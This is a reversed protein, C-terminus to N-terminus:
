RILMIQGTYRRTKVNFDPKAVLHWIYIQNAGYHGDGSNSGNWKETRDRTEFVKQGWRDVIWFHYDVLDINSLVPGFLDNLGDGNPTFSNPVFIFFDDAVKIEQCQTDLCGHESIVDLCVEYTGGDVDPFSFSTNRSEASALTDITWYSQVDLPSNNRFYVEPNSVSIESDDFYFDAYTSYVKLDEPWVTRSKCGNETEVELAVTYTGPSDFVFSAEPEATENTQYESSWRFLEGESGQNVHATLELPACGSTQSLNFDSEPAPRVKVSDTIASTCGMASVATLKIETSTSASFWTQYASDASFCHTPEWSYADGGFGILSLSDNSCVETGGAIQPVPLPHTRFAITDSFYCGNLSTTIELIEEQVFPSEVNAFFQLGENGNASINPSQTWDFEQGPEPNLPLMLTDLYCVEHIPELNIAPIPLVELFHSATDTSTCNADSLSVVRYWGEANAAIELANSETIQANGITENEELSYTWPGMGNFLIEITATDGECINEPASILAEPLAYHNVQVGGSVAGQCHATSVALPEVYGSDALAIQYNTTNVTHEYDVQNQSYSFTYPLTGSYDIDIWATDYPCVTQDGVIELSPVQHFIVPTGPTVSLYPDSFDIGDPASNGVVASVFYTEELSMAEYFYFEPTSSVELISGLEAAESDHLVYVLTDNGDLTFDAAESVNVSTAGCIRVTDSQMQGAQTLVPCFHTGSLTDAVCIGSDGLIVQLPTESPYPISAFSLESAEGEIGSVDYNSSDGFAMDFSLTFQADTGTCEFVPNQIEPTSIFTVAVSDRYECNGNIESVAINYTGYWEATIETQPNSSDSFQVEPQEAWEFNGSSPTGSLSTVLGCVNFDEGASVSPQEFFTIEYAATDRCLNENEVIWLLTYDGESDATLYNSAENGNAFNIAPDSVWFNADGIDQANLEISLGCATDALVPDLIPQEVFGLSNTDSDACGYGNDAHLIAEYQGYDATFDGPLAVNVDSPVEWSLAGVPLDFPLTLAASCVATDAGLEVIPQETFRLLVTDSVSCFGEEVARFVAQFNGYDTSEIPTQPANVGGAASIEDPLIWQADGVSFAGNLEGELSCWGADSGASVVPIEIFRVTASDSAVCPGNQVTLYFEANGYESFNMQTSEAAPQDILLAPNDAHWESIGNAITGEVEIEQGCISDVSTIQAELLNYFHVNVTDADVCGGGANETFVFSYLGEQDVEVATEASDPHVISTAGDISEWHMEGYSPMATLDATLGCIEMDAGANTVPYEMQTLDWSLTRSCGFINDTIEVSYNGAVLGSRSPGAEGIDSWLFTYDGSGSIVDIDISGDNGNCTEESLVSSLELPIDVRVTDTNPCNSNAYLGEAIYITSSDPTFTPNACPNCSAEGPGVLAGSGDYWHYSTDNVAFLQVSEGLCIATDQFAQLPSRYEFNIAYYAQGFVPCADDKATILFPTGSYDAPITGCIEIIAPNGPIVNETAGPIVEDINSSLDVNVAPDSSTFDISVCFDDGECVSFTNHDQPYAGGSINDFSDVDPTPSPTPCATVVFIFDHQVKGILVGDRYESVEVVINFKGLTSPEVYIQGTQPDLEIGNMPEAGSFGAVYDVEVPILPTTSSQAEVFAYSLSDGEADVFGLNYYLPSGVCIFPLNVTTLQPSSNCSGDANNLFGEVHITYLVPNIINLIAEDRNQESVVFHWDACPELAITDRYIGLEVGPQFGGNCTSNPLEADCLQSVEDTSVLPFSVYGISNCSSYIFVNIDSVLEADNCDRFVNATIVYENGGICEYEVNIGSRHSGSALLALCLGITLM